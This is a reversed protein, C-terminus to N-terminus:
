LDSRWKFCEDPRDSRGSLDERFDRGILNLFPDTWLNVSQDGTVSFPVSM